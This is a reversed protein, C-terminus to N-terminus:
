STKSVPILLCLLHRLDEPSDHLHVVPCDEYSEELESATPMDAFITSHAALLGHFVRFAINNAVLVISGDDLWFEKDHEFVLAQPPPTAIPPAVPACKAPPGDM